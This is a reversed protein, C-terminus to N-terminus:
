LLDHEFWLTIEDYNGFRRLAQDREQCDHVIDQLPMNFADALFTARVTSLSDLDPTAPVPGEHLIDRWPLIDADFGAKHMIDVTSDGNTIILEKM